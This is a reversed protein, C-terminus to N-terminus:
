IEQEIFYYNETDNLSTQTLTKSVPASLTRLSISVMMNQYVEEGYIKLFM